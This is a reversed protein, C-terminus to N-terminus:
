AVFQNVSNMIDDNLNTAFNNSYNSESSSELQEKLVEIVQKMFETRLRESSALKEKFTKQSFKMEKDDKNDGLYMGVGAGNIRKADKLLIFLSLEIDFGHDQDFVLPCTKGNSTTRSKVIQLTSINGTIGFDKDATLKEKDNIRFINTALYVIAKGGPLTEDTKLFSLQAQTKSFANIEVKDTIHNIIFLM